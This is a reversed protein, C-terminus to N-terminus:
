GIRFWGTYYLGALLLLCYVIAAGVLLKSWAPPLSAAASDKTEIQPGGQRKRVGEVIVAATLLLSLVSVTEM